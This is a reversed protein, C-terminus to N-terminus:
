TPTTQSRRYDQKKKHGRSPPMTPPAPLGGEEPDHPVERALRQLVHTLYDPMHDAMMRPSVLIGESLLEEATIWVPDYGRRAAMTKAGPKLPRLFMLRGPPRYARAGAHRYQRDKSASRAALYAQLVGRAEPAVQEEPVFLDNERWRKGFLMTLLFHMKSRKCRCAAMIMEDRLREFSDLTLRPIWDKGLVVSTTFKRTSDATEPDLLGGPPSFAWCRVGPFYNRLYLAILVSAGAGLSHGTVVLSYGRCDPLERKRRGRSPSQQMQPAENSTTKDPTGVNVRVPSPDRSDVESDSSEGPSGGRPLDWYGDEMLAELIGSHKMDEVVAKAADLMGSHASRQTDRGVPSVPPSSGSFSSSPGPGHAQKLWADLEAPECLLDTLCDELSLTGRIALVVSKTSKDVAIFYPICGKFRGENQFRVFIVDEDPLGTMQQIAERNMHNTVKLDPLWQQAMISNWYRRLPGLVFGCRRGMLLKCCGRYRPESWIYLMYGYAAFAYKMFHAATELDKCSVAELGPAQLRAARRPTWESRMDSAIGSPTLLHLSPEAECVTLGANRGHELIDHNHPSAKELALMANRSNVSDSSDTASGQGSQHRGTEIDGFTTAHDNHGDEPGNDVIM